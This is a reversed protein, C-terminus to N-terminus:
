KDLAAHENMTAISGDVMGSGHKENPVENPQFAFYFSYNLIVKIGLAPSFNSYANFKLL